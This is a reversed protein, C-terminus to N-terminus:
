CAYLVAYTSESEDDSSVSSTPFHYQVFCDAEGWVTNDFVSLGRVGEVTLDFVHRIHRDDVKPADPETAAATRRTPPPQSLQYPRQLSYSGSAVQQQLHSM